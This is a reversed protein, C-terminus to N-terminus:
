RSRPIAAIRTLEVRLDGTRRVKEIIQRAQEGLRALQELDPGFIRVSFMPRHDASDKTLECESRLPSCCAQGPVSEPRERM